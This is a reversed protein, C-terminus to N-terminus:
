ILTSKQKLDFLEAVSPLGLSMIVFQEADALVREQKTERTVRQWAKNASQHWSIQLQEDVSLHTCQVRM